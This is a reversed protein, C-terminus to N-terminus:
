VPASSVPSSTESFAEPLRPTKVVIRSNTSEMAEEMAVRAKNILLSAVPATRSFETIGAHLTIEGFFSEAAIAVLRQAAIRAAAAATEPLLVWVTDGDDHAALDCARLKRRVLGLVEITPHLDEGAHCKWSLAM